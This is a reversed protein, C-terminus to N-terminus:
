IQAALPDQVLGRGEIIVKARQLDNNAEVLNGEAASLETRVLNLFKLIENIRTQVINKQLECREKRLQLLALIEGAGAPTHPASLVVNRVVVKLLSEELQFRSDTTSELSKSESHSSLAAQGMSPAHHHQSPYLNHPPITANELEM